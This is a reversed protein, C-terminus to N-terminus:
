AFAQFKFRVRNDSTHFRSRYDYLRSVFIGNLGYRKEVSKCDVANFMTLLYHNRQRIAKKIITTYPNGKENLLKIVAEAAAKLEEHTVGDM